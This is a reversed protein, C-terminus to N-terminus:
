MRALHGIIGSSIGTATVHLMNHVHLEDYMVCFFVTLFFHGHLIRPGFPAGSSKVGGNKGQLKNVAM